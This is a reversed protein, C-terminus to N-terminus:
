VLGAKAAVVVAECASGVEFKKYVNHLTIHVNHRTTGWQQSIHLAGFGKATLILV